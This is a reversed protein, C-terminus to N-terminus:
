VGVTEGADIEAAAAAAAGLGCGGAWLPEEGQAVEGQVDVLHEIEVEVDVAERPVNRGGQWDYVPSSAGVGVGVVDLEHKASFCGQSRADPVQIRVSNPSHWCIGRGQM